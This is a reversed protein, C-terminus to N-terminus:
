EVVMGTRIQTMVYRLGLFVLLHNTLRAGELM